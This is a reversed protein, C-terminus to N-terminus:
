KDDDDDDDDDKAGPKPAPGFYGTDMVVTASAQLQEMSKQVAEGRLKKEIDARAQEFTDRKEEVQIIHYGFQSKVPESIENVKLDFVAKEFPPVMRGHGFLGLEGGNKGSTADDSEAKALKAFDGGDVLQKRIDQAKALAQEETLEKQGPKLPIPSGKFGILIHRAKIQDLEAKHKDYYARVATEDLKVSEFDTFLARAMVEERQRAIEEKFAPTQDLKRKRAEAAMLKLRIINEAFTRRGTTRMQTRYQEPIMDIFRDFEAATIKEDGITLVVKDPPVSAPAAPPTEVAPSQALLCAL